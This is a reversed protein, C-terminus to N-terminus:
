CGGARVTTFSSDAHINISRDIAGWIGVDNSMQGSGTNKDLPHWFRKTWLRM